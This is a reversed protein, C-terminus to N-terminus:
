DFKMGRLTLVDNRIYIGEMRELEKQDFKELFDKQDFNKFSTGNINTWEGNIFTLGYLGLYRNYPESIRTNLITVFGLKIRNQFQKTYYDKYESKEDHLVRIYRMFSGYDIRSALESAKKDNEIDDENPEIRNTAWDIAIKNLKLITSQDFKAIFEDLRERDEETPRTTHCFYEYWDGRRIADDLSMMAKITTSYDGKWKRKKSSDVKEELKNGNPEILIQEMNKTPNPSNNSDCGPMLRTILYVGICKLLDRRSLEYNKGVM